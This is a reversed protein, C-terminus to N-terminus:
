PLSGGLAPYARGDIEGNGCFADEVFLAQRIEATGQAFAGPAYGGEEGVKQAALVACRSGPLYAAPPLRPIGSPACSAGRLAIHLGELAWGGRSASYLRDLHRAAPHRMLWVMFASLVPGFLEIGLQEPDNIRAEPQIARRLRPPTM